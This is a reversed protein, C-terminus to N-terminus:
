QGVGVDHDAHLGVDRVCVAVVPGVKVIDGSSHSALVGNGNGFGGGSGGGGRGERALSGQRLGQRWVVAARKRGEM